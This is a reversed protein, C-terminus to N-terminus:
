KSVCVPVCFCGWVEEEVGKDSAKVGWRLELTLSKILRGCGIFDEKYLVILGAKGEEEPLILSSTWVATDSM